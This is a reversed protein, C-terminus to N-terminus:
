KRGLTLKYLTLDILQILYNIIEKFNLKSEGVKRDVFIYPIEKFKKYHAKVIIELGIKFGIPNLKVGNLCEKNLFFYGSTLDKVKTLYSGLIVAAKSIIKRKLPWNKIGGQPIYRSGIALEAEKNIITKILQPIIKPDHSLDADMVGLIDGKANNFGEIVAGSLGTKKKKKILKVPYNGTLEKVIEGTKDPSNDDVVIIEGLIKEQNLIESVEKILIAINKSENYTPIIISVM